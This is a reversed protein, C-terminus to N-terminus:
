MQLGSIRLLSCDLHPRSTREPLELPSGKEQKKWSRSTGCGQCTPGGGMKVAWGLLIQVFGLSDQIWPFAEWQGQAWPSRPSWQCGM